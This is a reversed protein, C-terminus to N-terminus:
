VGKQNCSSLCWAFNTQGICSVVGVTYTFESYTDQMVRVHLQKM